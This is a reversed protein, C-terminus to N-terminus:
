NFLAVALMQYPLCWAKLALHYLINYTFCTFIFGTILMANWFLETTIHWMPWIFTQVRWMKCSGKQRKPMWILKWLREFEVRSLVRIDTERDNSECFTVKRLRIFNQFLSKLIEPFNQFIGEGKYATLIIYFHDYIPHGKYVFTVGKNEFTVETDEMNDTVPTSLNVKGNYDFVNLRFFHKWELRRTPSKQLFFGGQYEFSKLCTPIFKIRLIYKM